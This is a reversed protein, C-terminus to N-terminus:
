DKPRVSWCDTKVPFSPMFLYTWCGPIPHTGDVPMADVGYNTGAFVNNGAVRIAKVYASSLGMNVQQWKKQKLSYRYVGGASSLFVTTHAYLDLDFCHQYLSLDNWTKSELNYRFVGYSSGAIILSDSMDVALVTLPTYEPWGNEMEEWTKGEDLSMNKDVFVVNGSCTILYESSSYGLTTVRTFVNDSVTGKFLGKYQVDAFLTGSSLIDMHKVSHDTFGQIKNWHGASRLYLGKSTGAYVMEKSYASIKYAALGDLEKEWTKGQNSSHYIGTSTGAYLATTDVNELSLINGGYLNKLQQFSLSQAQLTFYSFFFVILLINFKSLKKM